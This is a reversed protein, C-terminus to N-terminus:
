KVSHASDLTFRLREESNRLRAEAAERRNAADDLRRRVNGIEIIAPSAAQSEPAQDPSALSALARGLRRSALTGGVLGALTAGVVALALTAAAAIMPGYYVDRPIELVVSWPSESSHVVFRGKADVATASTAGDSRRRAITEGRGDLVVLSWGPSLEIEDLYKAFSRTEFTSLLLYTM